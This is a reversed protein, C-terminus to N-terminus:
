ARLSAPPTRAIFCLRASSENTTMIPSKSVSASILATTAACLFFPASAFQQAVLKLNTILRVPSAQAVHFCFPGLQAPVADDGDLPNSALASGGSLLVLASVAVILLKVPKGPISYVIWM